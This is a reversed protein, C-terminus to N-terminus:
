SIFSSLAYLERQEIKSISAAETGKQKACSTWGGKEKADYEGAM